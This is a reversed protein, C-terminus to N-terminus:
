GSTGADVVISVGAEPKVDTTSSDCLAVLTGLLVVLAAGVAKLATLYKVTLYKDALKAPASVPTKDESGSTIPM